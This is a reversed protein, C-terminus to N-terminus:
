NIFVIEKKWANNSGSICLFLATLLLSVYLGIVGFNLTQKVKWGLISFFVSKITEAPQTSYFHEEWLVKSLYFYISFGNVYHSCAVKKKVRCSTNFWSLFSKHSLEGLHKQVNKGSFILDCRTTNNLIEVYLFSFFFYLMLLLNRCYGQHM